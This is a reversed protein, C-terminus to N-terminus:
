EEDNQLMANIYHIVFAVSTAILTIKRTEGSLTAFVVVSGSITFAMAATEKSFKKIFGWPSFRRKMTEEEYKFISNRTFNGEEEDGEPGEIETSEEEEEEPEDEKRGSGGGDGPGSGSGGGGSGGGKSTPGNSNGSGGSSSVVAASSLATTAALLSKRTGVDINSGVAVYDDLGSAYVDITEEFANKIEEPANTVAEVLAAEEEATLDSVPIEDFIESAQEGDISELVKESTALQTAQDETVGNELINDVATAVQEETVTDSELIGVVEAFQEDTLPSDLVADIVEAFKEDSLPEEFVADLAASLEETSLNDSFVSDVVAAFEDTSLPADLLSTVLAGVEEPSDASDIANKVAAGLEDPNDTNKFIDEVAQDAAAETTDPITVPDPEPITTTTIEEEPVTIPTEEEPVPEFIKELINTTTPSITTTTTEIVVANPAYKLVVVLHKYTGGCPDGFVGNDASITASNKGIFVEEVEQISSESNCSSTRYLGNSGTPTGYSAFLVETFKNGSPATLTLDSGENALGWEADNLSYTIPPEPITTTTTTTTTTPVTNSSQIFQTGTSSPLATSGVNSTGNWYYYQIWAGNEDWINNSITSWGQYKNGNNYGDDLYISTGNNIFTNGTILRNDLGMNFTPPIWANHYVAISNTNFTSNYIQTRNLGTVNAGYTNNSFISDEIKTFRYNYIGAWNSTFTGRNIYTRNQFGSDDYTGWSTAGAPLAPTSGYDGAVGISLNDFTCDTYTAVAGGNNNFVASGGTMTTFRVNSSQVTGRNNYILGGNTNQGRKLTLNSLTLTIGSNVMFPRYAGAGDISIVSQGPGTINVNQSIAPLASTLTITGSLSPDFTISDNIGGSLTNAQAIAWRLTGADTTDALSTVVISTAPATLRVCPSGGNGGSCTQWGLNSTWATNGDNFDSNTLVQQGDVYLKVYDLATGYNGAWFEGDGGYVIVELRDTSDWYPASTSTNNYSFTQYTSSNLTLSGSDVLATSTNQSDITNVVVRFPDDAPKWDQTEKASVAVSVSSKGVLSTTHIQSISGQQYAFVVEGNVSAKAPVQPFCVAVAFLVALIWSGRRPKIKM